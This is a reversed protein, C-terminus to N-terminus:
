AAPAGLDTSPIPNYALADEPAVPIKTIRATNMDYYYQNLDFSEACEVWFLPKAVPFAVDSLQAIRAPVRVNDWIGDTEVAIEVYENPSILAFM